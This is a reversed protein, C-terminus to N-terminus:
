HVVAKRIASTYILNSRGRRNTVHKLIFIEVLETACLATEGCCMSDDQGAPIPQFTAIPRNMTRSPLSLTTRISCLFRNIGFSRSLNGNALHAVCEEEVFHLAFLKFAKGEVCNGSIALRRFRSHEAERM